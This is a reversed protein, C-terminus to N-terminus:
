IISEICRIVEKIKKLDNNTISNNCLLDYEKKVHNYRYETYENFNVNHNNDKKIRAIINKIEECITSVNRDQCNDIIIRFMESIVHKLNYVEELNRLRYKLLLMKLLLEILMGLNYIIFSKNNFRNIINDLNDLNIVILEKYNNVLKALKINLEEEVNSSINVLEPLDNINAFSKNM